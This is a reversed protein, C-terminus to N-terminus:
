TNIPVHGFSTVPVRFYRRAVSPLISLDLSLVIEQRANTVHGDTGPLIKLGITRWQRGRPRAPALLTFDNANRIRWSLIECVNRGRYATYSIWPDLNLVTRPTVQPRDAGLILLFKHLISKWKREEDNEEWKKRGEWKWGGKGDPLVPTFVM